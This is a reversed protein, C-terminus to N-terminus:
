KMDDCMIPVTVMLVESAIAAPMGPATVAIGPTTVVGSSVDTPCVTMM